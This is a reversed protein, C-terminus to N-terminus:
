KTYICFWSFINEMKCIGSLFDILIKPMLGRGYWFIEPIFYNNMVLWSKTCFSSALDESIRSPFSSLFWIFLCIRNHFIPEFGKVSLYPIDKAKNHFNAFGSKLGFLLEERHSNWTKPRPFRQTSFLEIQFISWDISQCFFPPFRSITPLTDFSFITM